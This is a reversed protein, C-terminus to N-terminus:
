QQQQYCFVTSTVMIQDCSNTESCNGAIVFAFKRHGGLLFDDSAAEARGPLCWGGARPIL